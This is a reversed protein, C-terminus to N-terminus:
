LTRSLLRGTSRSWEPTQSTPNKETMPTEITIENSPRLIDTSSQHRLDISEFIPIKKKHVSSGYGHLYEIGIAM